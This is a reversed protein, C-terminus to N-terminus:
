GALFRQLIITAFVGALTGIIGYVAGWQLMDLKRGGLRRANFVGLVVGILLGGLVIVPGGGYKGPAPGTNPRAGAGVRAWPRM